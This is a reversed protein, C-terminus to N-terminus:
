LDCAAAGRVARWPTTCLSLPAALSVLCMNVGIDELYEVVLDGLEPKKVSLPETQPEAQGFVRLDM